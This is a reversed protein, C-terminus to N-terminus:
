ELIDIRGRITFGDRKTGLRQFRFRLRTPINRKSFEIERPVNALTHSQIFSDPIKVNMRTKLSSLICDIGGCGFTHDGDQLEIRFTFPKLPEM